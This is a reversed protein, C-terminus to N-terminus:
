SGLMQIAMRRASDALHSKYMMCIAYSPYYNVELVSVFDEDHELDGLGFLKKLQRKIFSPASGLIDDISSISGVIHKSCTSDAAERIIEM